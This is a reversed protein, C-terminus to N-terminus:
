FCVKPPLERDEPHEKVYAKILKHLEEPAISNVRQGKERIAAIVAKRALRIQEQQRIAIVVPHVQAESILEDRHKMFYVNTAAAIESPEICDPRVGSARLKEKIKKRALWRAMTILAMAAQTRM